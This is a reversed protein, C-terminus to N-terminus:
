GIAPWIEAKFSDYLQQTTSTSLVTDITTDDIENSAISQLVKASLSM